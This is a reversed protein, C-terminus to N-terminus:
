LEETEVSVTMYGDAPNLTRDIRTILFNGTVSWPSKQINMILKQGISANILDVHDSSFKITRKVESSKKVEALGYRRAELKSTVDKNKVAKEMLGYAAKDPANEFYEIFQQMPKFNARLKGTFTAPQTLYFTRNKSNYVAEADDTDSGEAKITLQYEPLGNPTFYIALNAPEYPLPGYYKQAGDATYYVNIANAAAQKTGVIWVRNYHDIGEYDIQLSGVKIMSATLTTGTSESGNFFHFDKQKDIYYHWGYSMGMIYEIADKLYVYTFKAESIAESSADINNGSGETFYKGIMSSLMYSATKGAYSEAVIRKTLFYGYDQCTFITQKDGGADRDSQDVIIGTIVISSGNKVTLHHFFHVTYIARCDVKYATVGSDLVDTIQVLRTRNTIDHTQGTSPDYIEVTYAM